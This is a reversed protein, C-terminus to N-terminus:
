DENQSVIELGPLLELHLAQALSQVLHERVGRKPAVYADEVRGGRELAEVEEDGLEEASARLHLHERELVALEHSM